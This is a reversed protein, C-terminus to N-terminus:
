LKLEMQINCREYPTPPGVVKKFGLKEYLRIAPKLITNSELFVRDAKLSVAKEIVARGLLYGINKGQAKPSVAMKALEYCGLDDRMILACVGVPEKNLIAVFIYGGKDLIYSKPNELADRDPKEMKFYTSIWEENLKYFTQKYKPQYPVIKVDQSDRLKKKELVRDRLSKQGLLYEWEEIAAWLNHSAQSSIEEIAAGVDQYQEEIRQSIMRGKKSLAVKTRRRDKADTKETVLGAKEMEGIIKSVSAHSHGIHEAISTVTDEDNQSLVYFVPFWKPHLDNGYSRYIEAADQGIKEGLFRVRTGLAMKGVQDFFKM